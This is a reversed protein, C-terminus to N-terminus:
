LSYNQQRQEMRIVKYRALSFAYHINETAISLFLSHLNPYMPVSFILAQFDIVPYLKPDKQDRKCILFIKQTEQLEIRRLAKVQLCTLFWFYFYFSFLDNFNLSQITLVLSASSSVPFLFWHFFPVSASPYHCLFPLLFTLSIYLPSCISSLLTIPM